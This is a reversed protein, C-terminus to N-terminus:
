TDNQVKIFPIVGCIWLSQEKPGKMHKSRIKSLISATM